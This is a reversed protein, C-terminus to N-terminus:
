TCLRQFSINPIMETMKIELRGILFTCKEIYNIFLILLRIKSKFKEVQLTESIFFLYQPNAIFANPIPQGLSMVETM